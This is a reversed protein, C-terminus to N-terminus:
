RGGGGEAKALLMKAYGYDPWVELAKRYAAKADDLKNERELVQGLWAYADALGWSPAPPAPRDAAAFDIAKRLREEAKDLGGGFAKPTFMASMGHMLWVRPNYPGLELARDMYGTARPGLTMGAMPNNSLGILQGTVSSRLAFSEPMALGKTSLDLAQDAAELEQKAADKM